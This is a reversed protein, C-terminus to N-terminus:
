CFTPLLGTPNYLNLEDHVGQFPHPHPAVHTLLSWLHPISPLGQLVTAIGFHLPCTAKADLYLLVERAKARGVGAGVETVTIQCKGQSLLARAPASTGLLVSVPDPLCRVDEPILHYAELGPRAGRLPGESGPDLLGQSVSSLQLTPAPGPKWLLLEVWKPLLFELRHVSHRTLLFPEVRGM